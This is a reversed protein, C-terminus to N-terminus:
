KVPLPLTVVDGDKSYRLELAANKHKNTPRSFYLYGAVAQSTQGEPLAKERARAEVVYPDYPPPPPPADPPPDNTVAVGEYTSLSRTRGNVPDNGRSYTVGTEGHVDVGRKPLSPQDEKWLTAVDRPTSPYRIDDPGFKLAFDLSAVDVATGAQPYLAVEVVIYKKGIEAPLIKKVQDGPALQAGIAVAQATKSVPYETSSPRPQLGSDGAVALSSLVAVTAFCVAVTLRM